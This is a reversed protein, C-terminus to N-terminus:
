AFNNDTRDDHQAKRLREDTQRGAELVEDFYSMGRGQSPKHNNYNGEMVKQFSSKQLLFDITAKFDTKRGSLFDSSAVIELVAKWGELGDCEKLRAQLAKRRTDSLRQCAPLNLRAATDNWLDVCVQLDDTPPLPSEEREEETSTATATPANASKKCERQVRQREREAQALRRVESIKGRKELEADIRENRWGDATQTFFEMVVRQVADQESPAVAKCIRHM